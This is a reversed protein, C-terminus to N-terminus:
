RMFYPSLVYQTTLLMQTSNFLVSLIYDVFKCTLQEASMTNEWNSTRVLQDKELHRHLYMEALKALGIPHQPVSYFGEPDVRKVMDNLEVCGRMSIRYDRWVKLADDKYFANGLLYVISLADSM